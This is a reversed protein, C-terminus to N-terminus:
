GYMDDFFIQVVKTDLSNCVSRFYNSVYNIIILVLILNFRFSTYIGDRTIITAVNIYSLSETIDSFM